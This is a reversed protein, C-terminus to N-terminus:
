AVTFSAQQSHGTMVDRISVRWRGKPDNHALPIRETHPSGNLLLNRHYLEYRQGSPTEIELRVVRFTQAALPESTLMVELQTGSKVEPSVELALKPIPQTSLTLILPDWPSLTAKHTAVMGLDRRGRVDYAHRASKWEVTVQADSELLSNDITGAWGPAKMTPHNEWGGDDFQPNRFIAVHEVPGNRFLVVETGPLRKGDSGLVRVRPHIESLALVAELLEPLSTESDAHLRDYAYDSIELNLFVARGRGAQNVIVLPVSGSQALAKGTTTTVTEDGPRLHLTRGDLHLAGENGIGSSTQAAAQPKGRGIGFLDDLQGHGHDRGHENMTATRYDAILLGGANVFERIRQVEEAGVAISQPMIFVRFEGSNLRGSKIMEPSAFEYQLGLDETLKTWSNRVAIAHSGRDSGNHLMWQRAHKANDLLWHIQDSPPSYHIAIGDHTRQANVFLKGLGGRVENFVASYAEAAPTFQRTKPDVFQYDPLNADWILTGRHSHFLSWWVPRRARKQILRDRDALANGAKYQYGVTHIMIASPKLSRIVEVNNGGNYPEIVDDARLVQEYNYWGFPFPSQGGETACRADPDEAKCIKAARLVADAFTQDMFNRFDCWPTVNWGETSHIESLESYFRNVFKLVETWSRFDAPHEATRGARQNLGDLTRMKEELSKEELKAVCRAERIVAIVPAWRQRAGQPESVEPLNTGWQQNLRAITGYRTELAAVAVADFAGDTTTRAIMLDNDDKVSAQNEDDWHLFEDGTRWTESLRGPTRYIARLYEAFKATCHESHCFDNAKIQWGQGLEDAINYYLPRFAKHDRVYRTLHERLYEDTKPDNICPKRVWLKLNERDTSFSNVVNYWLPRDKIYISFVQWAMQEVYFRFNNDLVNSFSSSSAGAITADIGAERLKDYVGDEYHAWSIIHFDDWTDRPPTLLFNKSALQPVGAVKVRVWNSYTSGRSLNLSFSVASTSTGPAPLALKEVVRGFSDIWEAEIPGAPPHLFRIEGNLVATREYTEHDLTVRGVLAASRGDDRTDTETPAQGHATGIAGGFAGVAARIFGRRNHPHHDNM